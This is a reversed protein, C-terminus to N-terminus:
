FNRIRFSDILLNEHEPSEIVNNNVFSSVKMFVEIVNLVLVELELELAKRKRSSSLSPVQESSPLSPNIRLEGPIEKLREYKKSLSEMLEGVVKNRKQPIIVSLEDWEIVSFDGSRFPKHVVFNRQDNNKYVTIAVPKTNPHIHIHIIKQLKLRNQTTWVYQNFIKKKIERSKKLKALHEKESAVEVEILEPKRLAILKVEQTAKQM